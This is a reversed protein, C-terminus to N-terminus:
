DELKTIEVGYVEKLINVQEKFHRLTWKHSSDKFLIVHCVTKTKYKRVGRGIKQLFASKAKGLGAIIVTQCPKTDVGEGIVGETGILATISGQNFQQIHERSAADQGNVFPLGTMEALIKGHRVEKVLCITPIQQKANLLLHWAIRENRALNNVILDSYVKAWTNSATKTPIVPWYFAEVPVIYGKDVADKYTLEFIPPGCIAEFLLQENEQNRFYTATLFFRHYVSSWATKNLTQYSKAAAHHTEDIILLDINKLTKLRQSDINEIFLNPNSGGLAESLGEELQRKIELSPVVVLTRLKFLAIIEAIIRSKGTGTPAIIGGRGCKGALRVAEVQDPYAIPLNSSLKFMGVKPIPKQRKDIVEVNLHFPFTSLFRLVKDLLGTPFYGNKDLLYKRAFFIRKSFFQAQPDQAYSLFLRLAQFEKLNLNQIQCFSNFVSVKSM